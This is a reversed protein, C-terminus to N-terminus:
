MIKFIDSKLCWWVWICDNNYCISAYLIMDSGWNGMNMYMVTWDDLCNIICYVNHCSFHFEESYSITYILDCIDRVDFPNNDDCIENMSSFSNKIRWHVGILNIQCSNWIFESVKKFLTTIISYFEPVTGTITFSAKMGDNIFFQLFKIESRDKWLSKWPIEAPLIYTVINEIAPLYLKLCWIIFSTM